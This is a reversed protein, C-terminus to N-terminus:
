YDSFPGGRRYETREAEERRVHDARHLDIWAAVIWSKVTPHEGIEDLLWQRFVQGTGLLIFHAGMGLSPRRYSDAYNMIYAQQLTPDTGWRNVLATRITNRHATTDFAIEGHLRYM